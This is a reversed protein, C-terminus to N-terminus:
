GHLYRFLRYFVPQLIQFEFDSTPEICHSPSPLAFVAFGVACTTQLPEEVFTWFPAM